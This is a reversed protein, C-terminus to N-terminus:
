AKLANQKSLLRVWGFLSSIITKGLVADVDHHSVEVGVELVEIM